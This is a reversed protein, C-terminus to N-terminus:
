FNLWFSGKVLFVNGPHLRFLGHYDVNVNFSRTTFDEQYDGRSQAWVLYLVSGRRYEWRVVTNSRFAKYNLAGPDAGNRYPMYRDAFAAARPNALEMWPGYDGGSMYPQAYVQLSLTPTATFNMRLTAAVTKQDLSAFTYHAVGDHPPNDDPKFQAASIQRSFDMGLSTSFRSSVRLEVTPDISTWSTRGEDSRGWNYFLYPTVANRGDGEVGGWGNITPSQRIAPGGRACVDCYTNGSSLNQGFHLWINKKLQMHTNVNGGFETHMWDSTWSSWENVNFNWFRYIWKPDRLAWQWWLFQNRTNARSLYGVDNTEFGPSHVQYGINGRTIGGGRKSFSMQYSSGALSTRTPDFEIKDDPSVYNHVFDSQLGAISSMSGETLSRAYYGSIEYNRDFFQHRGDIGAVYASRRLYPDTDSDLSRNVATAMAGFSSAGQRLEHQVRGVFYNTQPEITHNGPAQERSTVADLIGISTGDSTRGTLKGAGLITTANANSADYYQGSLQPARGIRRSYFLGSCTGDNCNLDYRFIGQGELFFPRKEPYFTEVTGLNLVSPDAEVQGFDPNITADVTLNSTIGYKIDAGMTGVSRQEYRAGTPANETKAVSYPAIELRRPTALADIGTIEGLQSSLGGKSRRYLPWSVAEKHRAIQRSVLFGWTQHEAKAYRIQSLPIRFEATWGLSDIATAVDWVADWSQDEDGDNFTYLDRKVGAPNVAFEYGTRKDHYGDVILKIEDSETRSDRRALLARISDPHPDFARVFVYLNRADYAVRAETRFRPDGDEKPDYVRFTDIVQANAWLSEDAKGDIVPPREARIAVATTASAKVEPRSSAERSSRTSALQQAALSAPLVLLLTVARRVIAGGTYASM